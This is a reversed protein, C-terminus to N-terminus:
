QANLVTVSDDSKSGFFVLSIKEAAAGPYDKNERGKIIKQIMRSLLHILLFSFIELYKTMQEFIIRLWELLIPLWM